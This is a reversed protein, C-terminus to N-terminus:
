IYEFNEDEVYFGGEETLRCLCRREDNIYSFGKGFYPNDSVFDNLEDIAKKLNQVLEHAKIREPTPRITFEEEKRSLWASSITVIGEKVEYADIDLPHLAGSRLVTYLKGANNNIVCQLHKVAEEYDKNRFFMLRFMLTGAADGKESAICLYTLNDIILVKAGSKIAAQEINGIVAEEFNASDLSDRNIEVRYLNDPFQNLNNAEDSYRLQFQKDSLEFDFYLVRQKDAISTAIQVAYISKGMNSDSFLCCVEGEYWLTLWLADPNPRLAAEKITRNATKVTFMGIQEPIEAALQDAKQLEVGIAQIYNFGGM